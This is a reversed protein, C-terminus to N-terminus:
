TEGNKHMSYQYAIEIAKIVTEINSFVTFGCDELRCAMDYIPLSSPGCLWPAITKQDGGTLAEYFNPFGEVFEEFPSTWIVNLLYDMHDELLVARPIKPYTDMYNNFVAIPPGIDVITKGLYSSIDNPKKLTGSSLKTM